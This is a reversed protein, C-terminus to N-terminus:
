KTDKPTKKLNKLHLSIYFLNKLFFQEDLYLIYFQFIRHSSWKRKFFIWIGSFMKQHSYQFRYKYKDM